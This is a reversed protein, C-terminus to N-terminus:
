RREVLHEYLDHEIEAREEPYEYWLEILDLIGEEDAAAEFIDAVFEDRLGSHLM